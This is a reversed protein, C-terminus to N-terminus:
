IGSQPLRAFARTQRPRKGFRVSGHNRGERRRLRARDATRNESLALGTVTALAASSSLGAGSPVDSWIVLDAGKLRFNKSELIRAVGEIYNLWFGKKREQENDLDFEASEEFNITHVRIKRDERERIAVAAERDIAMPLVFGGNYDTHEGILNVRGPARFLRPKDNNGNEDGSGFIAAFREKLKQPDIM